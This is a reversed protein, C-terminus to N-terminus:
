SKSFNSKRRKRNSAYYEQDGKLLEKTEALDKAVQAYDSEVDSLYNTLKVMQWVTWTWFGVSISSFLILICSIVNDYVKHDIFDSIILAIVALIPLAISATKWQQIQKKFNKILVNGKKYM